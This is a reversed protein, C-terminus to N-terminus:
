KIRRVQYSHHSSGFMLYSGFQGRKIIVADGTNLWGDPEMVRWTQDSDLVVLTQGIQDSSLMTIHATESKPGLDAIHAQTASLGFNRPDAAVATVTTPAPATPAQAAPAATSVAARSSDDSARHALADYCSLRSDRSQIAACHAMQDSSPAPAPVAAWTATAAMLPMLIATKTPKNM